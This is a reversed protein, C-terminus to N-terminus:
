MLSIAFIFALIGPQDKEPNFFPTLKDTLENAYARGSVLFRYLVKYDADLATIMVSGALLKAEKESYNVRSILGTFTSDRSIDELQRPNQRNELRLLSDLLLLTEKATHYRWIYEYNFLHKIFRPEECEFCMSDPNGISLAEMYPQDCEHFIANDITIHAVQATIKGSFLLFFCSLFLLKFMKM